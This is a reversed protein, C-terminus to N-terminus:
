EISLYGNVCLITKSSIFNFTRYALEKKFVSGFNREVAVVSITQALETM